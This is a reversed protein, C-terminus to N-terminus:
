QFQVFCQCGAEKASLLGCSQYFASLKPDCDALLVLQRISATDKRLCELLFKGLGKRQHVPHILLDQLYVITEGDGVARLLGVLHGGSRLFYRYRSNKVARFLIEPEDTYATWGVSEYLSVLEAETPVHLELIISEM